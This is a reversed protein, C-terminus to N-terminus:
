GGSGEEEAVPPEFSVTFLRVSTTTVGTCASAPVIVDITVIGQNPEDSDPAQLTFVQLNAEPSPDSTNFPGVTAPPLVSGITSSLRFTTGTPMPNGNVDRVVVGIDALAKKERFTLTSGDYTSPATVA